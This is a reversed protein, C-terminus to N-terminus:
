AAVVTPSCCCFFPTNQETVAFPNHPLCNQVPPHSSKVQARSASSDGSNSAKALSRSTFVSCAAYVQRTTIQLIHFDTIASTTGLPTYLHDTFGYWTSLTVRVWVRSFTWLEQYVANSILFPLMKTSNDRLVRASSCELDKVNLDGEKHHFSLTLDLMGGRASLTSTVFSPLRLSVHKWSWDPCPVKGEHLKYNHRAVHQLLFCHFRCNLRTCWLQTEAKKM